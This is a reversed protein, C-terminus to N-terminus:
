RQEDKVLKLFFEIKLITCSKTTRTRYILDSTEFKEQDSSIFRSLTKGRVYRLKLRSLMKLSYRIVYFM